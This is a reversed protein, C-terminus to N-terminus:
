CQLCGTLYPYILHFLIVPLKWKAINKPKDGEWLFHTMWSVLQPYNTVSWADLQRYDVSDFWMFDLLKFTDVAYQRAYLNEHAAKDIALPQTRMLYRMGFM